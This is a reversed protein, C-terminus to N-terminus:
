KNKTHSLIEGSLSVEIFTPLNDQPNIYNLQFTQTLPNYNLNQTLTDMYKIEGLLRNYVAEDYDSYTGIIVNHRVTVRYTEKKANSRNVGIVGTTPQNVIDLFSLMKNKKDVNYAQLDCSYLWGILAKIDRCKNIRYIMCKEKPKQALIGNIGVTKNLYTNLDELMKTCPHTIGITHKLTNKEGVGKTSSNRGYHYSIYGDSDILGRIYCKMLEESGLDVFRRNEKTDMIGYKIFVETFVSSIPLVHSLKDTVINRTKNIPIHSRYKNDPQLYENFFKIIYEDISSVSLKELKKPSRKSFAGDGLLYGIVYAEENTSVTNFDRIRYESGNIKYVSYDDGHKLKLVNRGM